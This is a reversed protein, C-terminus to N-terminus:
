VELCYKIVVVSDRYQEQLNLYKCEEAREYTIVNDPLYCKCEKDKSCSAMVVAVFALGAFLAKKIM